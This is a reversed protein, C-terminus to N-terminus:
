QIQEVWIALLLYVDLTQHCNQYEVGFVDFIVHVVCLNGIEDPLEYIENHSFDLTKLSTIQGIAKPLTTLQNHSLDLVQLQKFGGISQPM